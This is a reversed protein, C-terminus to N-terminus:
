VESNIRVMKTGSMVKSYAPHGMPVAQYKVTNRVSTTSATPIGPLGKFFVKGADFIVVDNPNISAGKSAAKFTESFNGQYIGKCSKNKKNCAIVTFKMPDLTISARSKAPISYYDFNNGGLPVNFSLTYNSWNVATIVAPTAVVLQSLGMSSALVSWLLISKKM